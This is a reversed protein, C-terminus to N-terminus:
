ATVTEAATAVRDRASQLLMSPWALRLGARTFIYWLCRIYVVYISRVDRIDFM